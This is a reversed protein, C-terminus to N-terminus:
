GEPTDLLEQLRAALEPPLRTLWSADILGVDLMDRVHVRDITRNSTLKMRVLADLALLRYGPGPESDSVDPTPM